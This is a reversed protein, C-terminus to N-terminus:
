QAIITSRDLLPAAWSSERADRIADHPGLQLRLKSTRAVHIKTLTFARNPKM